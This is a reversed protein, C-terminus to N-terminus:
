CKKDKKQAQTILLAYMLIEDESIVDTPIVDFICMLGSHKKIWSKLIQLKKVGYINAYAKNARKIDIEYANFVSTFLDDDIKVKFEHTIKM